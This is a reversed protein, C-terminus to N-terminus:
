TYTLARWPAGQLAPRYHATWSGATDRLVEFHIGTQRHRIDIGETSVDYGNGDFQDQMRQHIYEGKAGGRQFNATLIAARHDRKLQTYAATTWGVPTASQLHPLNAAGSLFDNVDVQPMNLQAYIQNATGVAATITNRRGQSYKSNSSVPLADWAAAHQTVAVQLTNGLGLTNDVCAQRLVEKDQVGRPKFWTSNYGHNPDQITLREGVTETRETQQDYWRAHQRPDVIECANHACVAFGWDADGVFYTHHEAVRVNYVPEWKGTDEVKNVRVWGDDTRLWDGAQIEDLRVWGKGYVYFPHEATSAIVKPKGEEVRGPPALQPQPSTPALTALVRNEAVQDPTQFFGVSAGDRGVPRPPLRADARALCCKKYKKGSGCRCVDNRGRRLTEM